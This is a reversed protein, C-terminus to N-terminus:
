FVFREIVKVSHFLSPPFFLRPECAGGEVQKLPIGTYIDLSEQARKAMRPPFVCVRACVRVSRVESALGGPVCM